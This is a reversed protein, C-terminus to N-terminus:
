ISIIIEEDIFENAIKQLDYIEKKLNENYGEENSTLKELEREKSKICDNIDGAEKEFSIIKEIQNEYLKLKETSENLKKVPEFLCGSNIEEINKLIKEEMKKNTEIEVISKRLEAIIEKLNNQTKDEVIANIPDTLYSEIIRLKEKELLLKRLKRLPRQLQYLHQVLIRKANEIEYEECKIEEEFEEKKKIKELLQPKMQLKKENLIEIERRLSEGSRKQVDLENKLKSIDGIMREIKGSKEIVDVKSSLEDKIEDAIRCIEKMKRGFENMEKDFFYFLYRNNSTIKTIETLTKMLQKHFEFFDAYGTVQPQKFSGLLNSIIKTFEGQMQKAIQYGIIGEDLKKNAISNVDEKINNVAVAVQSCLKRCNPYIEALMREKKGEIIGKLEQLSVTRGEKKKKGFFLDLLDM